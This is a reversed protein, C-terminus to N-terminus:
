SFVKIVNRIESAIVYLLFSPETDANVRRCVFFFTTTPGNSTTNTGPPLPPPPAAYFIQSNKVEEIIQKSNSRRSIDSLFIDCESRGSDQRNLGRDMGGDGEGAAPMDQLPEGLRMLLGALKDRVNPYDGYYQSGIGTTGGGTMTQASRPRQHGDSTDSISNSAGDATNM